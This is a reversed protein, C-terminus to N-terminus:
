FIMKKTAGKDIHDITFRYTKLDAKLHAVSKNNTWKIDIVDDFADNIEVTGLFADSTNRLRIIELQKKVVDTKLGQEIDQM